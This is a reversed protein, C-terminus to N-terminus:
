RSCGDQRRATLEYDLADELKQAAPTRVEQTAHEACLCIHHMWMGSRDKVPASSQSLCLHLANLGENGRYSRCFSLSGILLSISDFSLSLKFAPIIRHKITSLPSGWCLFEKKKSVETNRGVDFGVTPEAQSDMSNQDQCGCHCRPSGVLPTQPDM